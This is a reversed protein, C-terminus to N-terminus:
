TLLVAFPPDQGAREELVALIRQWPGPRAVAFTAYRRWVLATPETLDTLVDWLADLNAGTWDPLELAARVAAYFDRTRAVEPLVAVRWGDAALQAEVTDRELATHPALIRYVGGRGSELGTRDPSSGSGTM